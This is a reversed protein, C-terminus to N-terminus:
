GIARNISRIRGLPVIAEATSKMQVGIKKPLCSPILNVDAM